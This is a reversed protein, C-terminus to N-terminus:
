AYTSLLHRLFWSIIQRNKVSMYDRQVKEHNLPAVQSFMKNKLTTGLENFLSATPRHLDDRSTPRTPRWGLSDTKSGECM